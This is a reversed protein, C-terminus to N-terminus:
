GFQMSRIGSQDKKTIIFDNLYAKALKAFAKRFGIIIFEFM